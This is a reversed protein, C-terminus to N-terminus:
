RLSCIGSGFKPLEGREYAPCSVVTYLTVGTSILTTEAVAGVAELGTGPDSIKIYRCLLSTARRCTSCLSEHKEM